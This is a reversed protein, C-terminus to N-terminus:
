PRFFKISEDEIERSSGFASDCREEGNGTAGRGAGRSCFEDDNLWQGRVVKTIIEVHIGDFAAIDGRQVDKRNVSKLKEGRWIQKASLYKGGSIVSTHGAMFLAEGVFLNCSWIADAGYFVVM